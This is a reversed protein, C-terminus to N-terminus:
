SKDSEVAEARATRGESAAAVREEDSVQKAEGASESFTEEVHKGDLFAWVPLDPTGIGEPPMLVSAENQPEDVTVHVEPAVAVGETEVVEVGVPRVDLVAEEGVLISENAEEREAVPVPAAAKAVAEDFQERTTNTDAM